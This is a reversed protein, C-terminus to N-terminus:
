IANFHFDAPHSKLISDFLMKSGCSIAHLEHQKVNPKRKNVSKTHVRPRKPPKERPTFTTFKQKAM